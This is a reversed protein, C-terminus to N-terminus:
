EITIPCKGDSLNLADAVLQAVKLQNNLTISIQLVVKFSKNHNTDRKIVYYKNRDLLVEYM